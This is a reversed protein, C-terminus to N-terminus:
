SARHEKSELIMIGLEDLLSDYKGNDRVFAWDENEVGYATWCLMHRKGGSRPDSCLKKADKRYM